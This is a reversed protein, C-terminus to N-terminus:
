STRRASEDPAEVDDIVDGRRIRVTTRTTPIEEVAVGEGFDEGLDVVERRGSAVVARGTPIEIRGDHRELFDLFDRLDIFELGLPRGERDTDLYVDEELEVTHAVGGHPIEGRLYVYVANTETDHEIRM